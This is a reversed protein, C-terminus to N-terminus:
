RSPTGSANRLITLQSRVQLELSECVPPYRLYLGKSNELNRSLRYETPNDSYEIPQTADFLNDFAMGIDTLIPLPWKVANASIFDPLPPGVKPPPGDVYDLLVNDLKIDMHVIPKWGAVPVEADTGEQLVLCADVLSTLIHWLSTTSSIILM